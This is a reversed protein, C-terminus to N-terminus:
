VVSERPYIQVYKEIAKPLDKLSEKTVFSDIRANGRNELVYNPLIEGFLIQCMKDVLREKEWHTLKFLKVICEEIGMHIMEHIPTAASDERRFEGGMSTRMTIVGSSVDYSGGSGYQTLSIKYQPLIKFGWQQQLNSFILFVKEIRVRSLELKRIGNQFFEVDYVEKVFTEFLEERDVPDFNPSVDALQQFIPHQPLEVSYKNKKYFPMRELVWWLYAYEEEPTKAKILLEPADVKEKVTQSQLNKEILLTM